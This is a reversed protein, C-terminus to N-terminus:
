RRNKLCSMGGVSVYSYEIIYSGPIHTEATITSNGDYDQGEALSAGAIPAALIILNSPRMILDVDVITCSSYSHDKWGTM